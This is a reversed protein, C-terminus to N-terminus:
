GPGPSGSAAAARLAARTTAIERESAGEQAATRAPSSEKVADLAALRQCEGAHAQRRQGLRRPGMLSAGAYVPTDRMGLVHGIEHAIEDVLPLCTTGNAQRVFVDITAGRVRGNELEIRVAGCGGNPSYSDARRRVVVKTGVGGVELRPGGAAWGRCGGSWLAIAERLEQVDFDKSELHLTEPTAFGASREAAPAPGRTMAAVALVLVVRECITAAASKM